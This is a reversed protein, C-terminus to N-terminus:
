FVDSFFLLYINYITLYFLLLIKKMEETLRRTTRRKYRYRESLSWSTYQICHLLALACSHLACDCDSSPSPPRRFHLWRFATIAGQSYLRHIWRLRFLLCLLRLIIARVINLLWCKLWQVSLFKTVSHRHDFATVVQCDKDDQWGKKITSLFAKLIKKTKFWLACFQWAWPGVGPGVWPWPWPWHWPWSPRTLDFESELELTPGSSYVLIPKWGGVWEGGRVGDKFSHKYPLTSLSAKMLFFFFIHLM